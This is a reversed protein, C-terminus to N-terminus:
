LYNYLKYDYNKSNKIYEYIKNNDQLVVKFRLLKKHFQHIVYPINDSYSIIQKELKINDVRLVFENDDYAHGFQLGENFGGINKLKDYYIASTFHYFFPKYTQHNYWRHKKIKKKIIENAFNINNKNKRLLNTYKEDLAYCSFTLYSNQTLNLNVYNIIDGMHCCEPNQIICKKGKVYHFGINYPICPSIYNKFKKYIPTLVILKIPFNYKDLIDYLSNDKDSNDDVIIVEFNKYISKNITNLTYITQVKRNYYGMVISIKNDDNNKNNKLSLNDYIKIRNSYIYDKLIYIIFKNKWDNQYNLYDFKDYGNKSLIHIPYNNNNKKKYTYCKIDYNDIKDNKKILCGNDSNKIYIVDYSDINEEKITNYVFISTKYKNLKKYKNEIRYIDNDYYIYLEIIDM